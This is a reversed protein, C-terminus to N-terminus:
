PSYGVLGRNMPNELCFYQLNGHGDGPSRGSGPISSADGAVRANCFSEKGILWWPLWGVGKKVSWLINLVKILCGSPCLNNTFINIYQILNLIPSMKENCRISDRLRIEFLDLLYAGLFVYLKQLYDSGVHWYWHLYILMHSKPLVM